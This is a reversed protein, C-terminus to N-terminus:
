GPFHQLDLIIKELYAITIPLLHSSSFHWLSNGPNISLGDAREGPGWVQKRCLITFTGQICPPSSPLYLYGSLLTVDGLVTPQLTEKCPGLVNCVAMSSAHSSHPLTSLKPSHSRDGHPMQSSFHLPVALWTVGGTHAVQLMVVPIAIDQMCDAQAALSAGSSQHPEDCRSDQLM